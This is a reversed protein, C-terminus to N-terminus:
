NDDTFRQASYSYSSKHFQPLHFNTCQTFFITAQMSEGFAVEIRFSFRPGIWAKCSGSPPLSNWDPSIKSYGRLIAKIASWRRTRSSPKPILAIPPRAASPRM